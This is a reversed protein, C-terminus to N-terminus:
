RGGCRRDGLLDDARARAAIGPHTRGSDTRRDGDRNPFYRKVFSENVVVVPPANASDRDDLVRGAVLRLGLAQFYQPTVIKFGTGVAGRRPEGAPLMPMGDGWGRLPLGTTVAAARMGPVARVEELLQQIYQTLEVADPNRDMRLPLYAAVIGETKYGIDM